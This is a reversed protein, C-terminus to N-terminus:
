EFNLFPNDGPLPSVNLDNLIEHVTLHYGEWRYERLKRMFRPLLFWEEGHQISLFLHANLASRHAVVRDLANRSRSLDLLYLFSPAPVYFASEMVRVYLDRAGNLDSDVQSRYISLAADYRYALELILQISNVLHKNRHGLFRTLSSPLSFLHCYLYGWFLPLSADGTIRLEVPLEPNMDVYFVGKGLEFLFRILDAPGSSHGAELVIRTPPSVPYLHQVASEGESRKIQPLDRLNFYEGVSGAFSPIDDWDVGEGAPAYRIMEYFTRAVTQRSVRWEFRETSSSLMHDLAPIETSEEISRSSQYSAHLDSHKRELHINEQLWDELARGQDQAWTQLHRWLGEAENDTLNKLDYTFHEANRNRGSYTLSIAREYSQRLDPHLVGPLLEQIYHAAFIRSRLGTNKFDEFLETLFDDTVFDIFEGFPDPYDYPFWRRYHFEEMLTRFRDNLMNMYYDLM